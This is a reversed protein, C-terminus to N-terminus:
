GLGGWPPPLTEGRAALPENEGVDWVQGYGTYHSGTEGFRGGVILRQGDASYEAASMRKSASEVPWFPYEPYSRGGLAWIRVSNDIGGTVLLRGDAALSASTPASGSHLIQPTLPNAQDPSLVDFLRVSDSLLLLRDSRSSAVELRKVFQGTNLPARLLPRRDELTWAQIEGDEGGSWLVQRPGINGFGLSPTNNELPLSEGIEKGTITDWFRGGARDGTALLQGDHSLAMSHIWSDGPASRAIPPFRDRGTALDIARIASPSTAVAVFRALPDMAMAPSWGGLSVRRLLGRSDLPSIILQNDQGNSVVFREDSTIELHLIEGSHEIPGAVLKGTRASWVRVAKDASATAFIRGRKSLRALQVTDPHSVQLIEKGTGVDWLRATGDLSASLVQNGDPGFEVWTVPGDHFWAQRLKPLDDLVSALRVRHVVEREEGGEELALAQMLWPLANLHQGEETLKMGTTVSTDVLQANRQQRERETRQAQILVGVVGLVIVLAVTTAAAVLLRNRRIFKKMRYRISPPSAVVPEHQLYRELDAALETAAQYRRTRDKELAKLTVWDLDGRLWRELVEPTANRREGVETATAGLSSIRTSPKVPDEERIIRQMEAYGAQRLREPEFPLSGTLLEYLLVGLSYVDTTTDVDLGTLDAQEPSMYEPTGVLLGHQTFLTKETLRQHLAKAVGFDIVKPVAKGDQVTVLVNSPKVDRHIIGRQHAHHLARCVPIFLDLREKPTLRQDDCYRTIPIGQVMEMVFYPRGQETTGADYVKAIHPHDMLALAQRESEFRAIVEKSDMGVKILKLAVRRRIPTEQQAQYVVGMGGEGLSQLIKYPGIQEPPSLDSGGALTTPDVTEPAQLGMKMLCAPCLGEPTGAPLETGCEPCKSEGTM